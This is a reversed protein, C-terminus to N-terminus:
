RLNRNRLVDIKKLIEECGACGNGAEIILIDESRM